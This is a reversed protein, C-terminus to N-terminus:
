LLNSHKNPRSSKKAGEKIVDGPKGALGFNFKRVKTSQPVQDVCGVKQAAIYSSDLQEVGASTCTQPTINMQHVTKIPAILPMNNGSSSRHKNGQANSSDGGSSVSMLISQHGFQFSKNAKSSGTSMNQPSIFRKQLESSNSKQGPAHAQQSNYLGCNIFTNTAAAAQVAKAFTRKNSKKAQMVIMNIDDQSIM